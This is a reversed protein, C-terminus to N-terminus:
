SQQKIKSWNYAMTLPHSAKAEDLRRVAANHPAGLVKEPHNQATKEIEKLAQALFDLNEVPETETPEIMLSEDVILPFYITPAHIGHDLLAKAVDLTRIGTRRALNKGSVVFEHKCPADAQYPVSYSSGELE